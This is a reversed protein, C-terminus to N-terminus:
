GVLLATLTDSPMKPLAEVDSNYYIFSWKNEGFDRLNSFYFLLTELLCFKVGQHITVYIKWFYKHLFLIIVM